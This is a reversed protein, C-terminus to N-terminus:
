FLYKKKKKQFIFIFIVDHYPHCPVHIRVSGERYPGRPETCSAKCRICAIGGLGSPPMWLLAVSNSLRWCWCFFLSHRSVTVMHESREYPSVLAIHEHIRGSENPVFGFYGM